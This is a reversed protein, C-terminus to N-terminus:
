GGSFPPMIAVVVGATLETNTHVIQRNVALKYKTNKLEPFKEELNRKLADTDFVADVELRNITILEALKGFSIIEIEM